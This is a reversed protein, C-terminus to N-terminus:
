VRASKKLQKALKEIEEAKKYMRVSLVDTTATKQVEERLESTLQYLREVGARFERENRLLAARRASSKAADSQGSDAPDNTASPAPPKPFPRKRQARAVQMGGVLYTAAGGLALLFMRRTERM